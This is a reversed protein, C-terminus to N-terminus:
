SNEGEEIEESQEEEKTETALALLRPLITPWGIGVILQANKSDIDFLRVFGGLYAGLGAGLGWLLISQLTRWGGYGVRLLSPRGSLLTGIWDLVCTLLAFFSTALAFSLLGPMYIRQLVSQSIEEISM